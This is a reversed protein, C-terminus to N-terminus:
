QIELSVVEGANEDATARYNVAVKQNTWGCSFKEAGIVVVNAINAVRLQWTKGAAVVKLM